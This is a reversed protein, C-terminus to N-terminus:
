YDGQVVTGDAMAAMQKLTGLSMNDSVFHCSGDAFALTAGEPHFSSALLETQRMGNVGNLRTNNGRTLRGLVIASTSREMNNPSTFSRSKPILGAWLAGYTLRPNNTFGAQIETRSSREGLLITNSSGDTIQGFKTRSNRSLVGWDVKFQPRWSQGFNCAGICAVYNSKAYPNLGAAIIDQHTWSKNYDGDKSADSPCIYAPIITSALDEGTAPNYQLWWQRAWRRTEVKYLDHLNNQEMYPLIILGWGYYRGLDPRNPHPIVPNGRSRITGNNPNVADNFNQGPPFQQFSSEYNLM